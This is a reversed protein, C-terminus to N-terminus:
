PVSKIQVEFVGIEDYDPRMHRRWSQEQGEALQRDRFAEVMVPIGSEVKVVVWIRKDQKQSAMKGAMMM